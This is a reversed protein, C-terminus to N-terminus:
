SLKKMHRLSKTAMKRNRTKLSTSKRSIADASDPQTTLETNTNVQVESGIVPDITSTTQKEAEVVESDCSKREVEGHDVDFKKVLDIEDDISMTLQEIDDM